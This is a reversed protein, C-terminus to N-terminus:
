AAADAGYSECRKVMGDWAHVFLMGHERKALGRAYAIADRQNAFIRSARLAGTRHVSWGKGRPMVHQSNKSM